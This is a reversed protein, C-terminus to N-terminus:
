LIEKITLYQNLNSNKENYWVKIYGNSQTILIDKLKFKNKNIFLITDVNYKFIEVDTM